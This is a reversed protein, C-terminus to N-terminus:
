PVIIKYAETAKQKLKVDESQEALMKISEALKQKGIVNLKETKALALLQLEREGSDLAIGMVTALLNANKTELLALLAKRKLVPDKSQSFDFLYYAEPRKEDLKFFNWKESRSNIYLSRPASELPWWITDGINFHFDFNGHISDGAYIALASLEVIGFLSSDPQSVSIRMAKRPYSYQYSLKLTQPARKKYLVAATSLYERQSLSIATDTLNITDALTLNQPALYRQLFLYWSHKDQMLQAQYQQHLHADLYDEGLSIQYYEEQWLSAQQLSKASNVIIRQENLFNAKSKLAPNLMEYKLYLQNLDKRPRILKELDNQSWVQERKKAIFALLEPFDEQMKAIAREEASLGALAETRENEAIEELQKEAKSSKFPGALIYLAEPKQAQASTYYHATENNLDVRFDEEFPTSILWPKATILNLAWQHPDANFCPFVFGLEARFASEASLRAANLSFGEQLYHWAEMEVLYERSLTYHLELRALPHPLNQFLIVVQQGDYNFDLRKRSGAKLLYVELNEAQLLKIETESSWNSPRALAKFSIEEASSFQFSLEISPETSQGSLTLFSLLFLLFLIGRQM